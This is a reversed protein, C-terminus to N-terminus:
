RFCSRRSRHGDEWPRDGRAGSVPRPSGRRSRLSTFRLTLIPLSSSGPSAKEPDFSLHESEIAPLGLHQQLQEFTSDQYLELLREYEQHALEETPDGGFVSAIPDVVSFSALLGCLVLHRLPRM